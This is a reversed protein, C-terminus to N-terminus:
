ERGLNAITGKKIKKVDGEWLYFGEGVRQGVMKARVMRKIIPSPKYKADGYERYLNDMWKLMKDIGFRDAMEFPGFSHGTVEMMVEDIDAVKAVGELLIGCAENLMIAIMRTSINGSSENVEIVKKGIMGAFKRVTAYAEDSTYFHRVVEVINIKAVPSIFHMGVAREPYKLVSALDSIMLTATNSTIVTEPNVHNEVMKFVAKREELSTGQKKSNITEIVIDCDSIDDYNLSGKIRSLVLKKEGATMGWNSIARDLQANLIKLIESIREENIDIFVVEIGNQSVHLAIEQGISGCGILAVKQLIGKSQIQKNLSFRELQEAM